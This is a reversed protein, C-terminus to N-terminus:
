ENRTEEDRNEEDRGLREGVEEWNGIEGETGFEQVEEDREHGGISTMADWRSLYEAVCIRLYEVVCISLYEDGNVSSRIEGGSIWWDVM